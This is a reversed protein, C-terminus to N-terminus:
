PCIWHAAFKTVTVHGAINDDADYFQRYYVEVYDTTGNLYIPWAFSIGNGNQWAPKADMKQMHLAGNKYFGIMVGNLVSYQSGLSLNCSCLYLGATGPLLKSNPADYISGVDAVENTFTVKAWTDALFGSQSVGDKDAEFRPIAGFLAPTVGGGELMAATVGGAKVRLRNIPNGDDDVVAADGYSELSSQDVLQSAATPYARSLLDELQAGTKEGTEGDFAEGRVFLDNMLAM